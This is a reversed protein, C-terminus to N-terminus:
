VAWLHKLNATVETIVGRKACTFQFGAAFFSDGKLLEFTFKAGDIKILRAYGAYVRNVSALYLRGVEYTKSTKM